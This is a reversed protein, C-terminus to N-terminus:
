ALLDFLLHKWGYYFISKGMYLYWLPVSPYIYFQPSPLKVFTNNGYYNVIQNFTESQPEVTWFAPLPPCQLPAFRM